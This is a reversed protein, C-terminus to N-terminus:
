RTQAPSVSEPAAAADKAEGSSSGSLVKPFSWLQRRHRSSESLPISSTKYAGCILQRCVACIMDSLASGSSLM